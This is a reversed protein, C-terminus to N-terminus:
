TIYRSQLSSTSIIRLISSIAIAKGPNAMSPSNSLFEFLYSSVRLSLVRADHWDLAKAYMSFHEALSAVEEAYKEDPIDSLMLCKSYLSLTCKQQPIIHELFYICHDLDTCEIGLLHLQPLEIPRLCKGTSSSLSSYETSIKLVELIHLNELLDLVQITTASQTSTFNLELVHLQSLWPTRLASISTTPDHYFRRLAPAVNSFPTVNLNHSSPFLQHIANDGYQLQLSIESTPM